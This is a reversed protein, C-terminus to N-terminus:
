TLRSHQAYIWTSTYPQSSVLLVMFNPRTWVVEAFGSTVGVSLFLGFLLRLNTTLSVRKQQFIFLARTKQISLTAQFGSSSATVVERNCGSRWYLLSVYHICASTVNDLLQEHYQLQGIFLRRHRSPFDFFELRHIAMNDAQAAYLQLSTAPSM